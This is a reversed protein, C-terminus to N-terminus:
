RSVSLSLRTELWLREINNAFRNRSGTSVEVQLIALWAMIQLLWRWDRGAHLGMRIVDLNRLSWKKLYMECSNKRIESIMGSNLVIYILAKSFMEWIVKLLRNLRFLTTLYRLVWSGVKVISDRTTRNFVSHLALSLCTVCVTDNHNIAGVKNRSQVDQKGHFINRAATLLDKRFPTISTLSEQLSNNVDILDNECCVGSPM